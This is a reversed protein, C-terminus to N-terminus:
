RALKLRYTATGPESIKVQVFYVGGRKTRFSLYERSGSRSSTATPQRLRDIRTTGPRWLALNLDAKAPGSLSLTIRQRRKLRVAFVDNQDDWYDVSAQLSRKKNSLAFARAGANDNTEYRDAPPVRGPWAIANTTDLRGWGTQPDRGDVCRRCGTAATQDAAAREMLGVVQEARLVPWELRVLVAAASVLASAFSTGQAHRYEPPGCDSYGQELCTPRQATLPRPLTSLLDDGPAAIDNYLPDRNSYLPVSGDRALASVGLVHPLAAPYSAYRWPQEPAQDGNGVAAVVVAGRRIAYAVASAELPSYSDRSADFPDRMGGLSLNIVRAGHDVAWRIARAEAELPVVGDYRVVKAVLLQAPFAMGAIGEQNDIRAAILGAVFTGHGQTDKLASGGVFSKYGAIRGKFEPHGADVGSDIVAVRMAPLSPRLAWADFGRVATVYWQRAFFPDTPAFAITRRAGLREVYSVGFTGRIGRPSKARVSVAFPGIVSAEGGTKAELRAALADAKSGPAVGVAFRAAHAAGPLALAGAVLFVLVAPRM